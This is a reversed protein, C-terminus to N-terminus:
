ITAQGQYMLPSGIHVTGWLVASLLASAECDGMGLLVASLLASAETGWAGYSEVVM